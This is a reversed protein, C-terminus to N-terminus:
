RVKGLAFCKESFADVVEAHCDLQTVKGSTDELVRFKQGEDHTALEAIREVTERVRQREQLFKFMRVLFYQKPLM